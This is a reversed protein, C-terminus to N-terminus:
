SDSDSASAAEYDPIYEEATDIARAADRHKFVADPGEIGADM